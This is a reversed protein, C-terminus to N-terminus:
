NINACESDSRPVISSFREQYERSTLFACVMSYYNAVSANNVIGLWFNYGGQDPDRRLYGFYQMSVFAANYEGGVFAQSDIADRLAFARSQDMNAGTNYKSILASRQGALDVNSGTQPDKISAILADVFLEATTKGSYRSVFEVKKVFALALAQKDAELNPGEVVQARDTNFEQFTPRRALGGKYLRYVFSGTRQFELEVFFAASVSIRRNRICDADSGCSSIQNSWYGLGDADADRGLFDRYHQNVFFDPNELPNTAPTPTPTPIPGAMPWGIDRLLSFTLDQPPTVSHTLNSNIDPEMLQNPFASSDWHSVSSGSEFPNPTFLLARGAQDAGSRVSPDVDLTANVGAALQAKLTNGNTQTIRVSPITITDDAGGMGAVPGAVNDAVIVGIAGADQANKVKTVFLCVGRDVLAIKGSVSAANTFPSCADTTSPGSSDAPDLAQVANGTIGPSSLAPGFAATGVQYNGAISAPSNVKLRPSGGLVNPVDMTVHSGSWALNNTNVASAQREANTMAPWSKGTTNDFLFRDYVSPLPGSGDGTDLQAGTSANTFTQFGFGHAFEHLLVTVLNINTGHNNDLGYYWHSGEMCGTNGLNINVRARIESTAPNLDAGSLANALASGYWTNGFPAGAFGHWIESAGASGLVASTSACPLPEWTSLITITSTSTLTAGWINAAFQFANLRQQGLTTGPNGGIPAVPTPDNFGVGAADNNQIVISAAGFATSSVVVLALLALLAGFFRPFLQYM